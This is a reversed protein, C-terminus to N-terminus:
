LDSLTMKVFISLVQWKKCWSNKYKRQLHIVPNNHYDFGSKANYIVNYKYINYTINYM